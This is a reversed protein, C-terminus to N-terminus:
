RRGQSLSWGPSLHSGLQQVFPIPYDMAGVLVTRPPSSYRRLANGPHYNNYNSDGSDDSSDRRPTPWYDHGDDNLNSGGPDATGDSDNGDDSPGVGGDGGPSGPPTSLDQVAVIRIRVHYRLGPMETREEVPIGLVHPEPIFILQEECIFNPHWCWAKVFFESDDDIPRDRIQSIEVGSCAPGLIIQAM